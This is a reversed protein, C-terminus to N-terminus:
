RKEIQSIYLNGTFDKKLQKLKRSVSADYLENGFELIFGGILSPDVVTSLDVNTTIAKQAILKQKIKEIAADSLPEASTIKLTSVGKIEKYQEVFAAMIGPLAAERKKALVLDFFKNTLETTKGSFIANLASRKKDLSIIPSKLFTKFDRNKAIELFLQVDDHVKELEGREQALGLLSKAYRTSIKNSM